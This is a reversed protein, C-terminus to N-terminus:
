SHPDGETSRSAATRLLGRAAEDLILRDTLATMATTLARLSGNMDGVKAFVSETMQAHRELSTTVQTLADLIPTIDTARKLRDREAKLAENEKTKEEAVSKYFDGRGWRFAVFSGALGSCPTVVLAVILALSV